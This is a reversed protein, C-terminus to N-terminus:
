EDGDGDDKPMVDEDGAHADPKAGDDEVDSDDKIAAAPKGPARGGM